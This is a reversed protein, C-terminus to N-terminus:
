KKRPSTKITVKTVAIDTTSKKKAATKKTSKAEEKNKVMALKCCDLMQRTPKYTTYDRKKKGVPSITKLNSFIEADGDSIEYWDSEVLLYKAGYVAGDIETDPDNKVIPPKKMFQKIKDFNTDDIYPM